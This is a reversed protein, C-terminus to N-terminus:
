QGVRLQPQQPQSSSATGSSPGGDATRGNEPRVVHARFRCVGSRTNRRVSAPLAATSSPVAIAASAQTFM